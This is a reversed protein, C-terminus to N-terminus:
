LRTIVQPGHATVIVTDEIHAALSKDVTRATWGDREVYVDYKGFTVMPELAFAMGERIVPGRGPKGYNLIEPAEHMKRGIGHGAFDRVVGFGASEVVKQIAASIDSIRAGPVAQAIGADLSCQTVEVLKKAESSVEGVFFCRAMDACYGRFQACVDITVMDGVVLKQSSSPVGHVVVDNLSICSAHKYGMYGKSQSVLGHASLYRDIHADIDLTTVGPVVSRELEVFLQALLQGTIRMSEFASIDKIVIM